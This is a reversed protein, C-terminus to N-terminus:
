RGRAELAPGLGKRQQSGSRGGEWRYVQRERVRGESRSKLAGKRGSTERIGLGLGLIGCAGLLADMVGAAKRLEPDEVSNLGFAKFCGSYTVCQSTKKVGLITRPM